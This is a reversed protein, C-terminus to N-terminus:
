CWGTYFRGEIPNQLQDLVGYMWVGTLFAALGCKYWRFLRQEAGFIFGNQKQNNKPMKETSQSISKLRTPKIAVLILSGTIGHSFM